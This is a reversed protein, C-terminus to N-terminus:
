VNSLKGNALIILDHVVLFTQLFVFYYSHKAVLVLKKRFWRQMKTMKNKGKKSSNLPWILVKLMFKENSKMGVSKTNANYAIHM